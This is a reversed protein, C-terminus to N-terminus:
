GKDLIGKRYESPTKHVIKKFIKTFYNVDPIGCYQAITQIQLSTTNLLLIAYEIRKQNVYDTLTIDTVKKFQNSLYSPNVNLEASINKLSLNATLDSDILKIVKQILSSYKKMSHNKVLLCYKRVMEKMLKHGSELSTIQEIKRAYDSSIRDIQYPHVAGLEAAKRLLTNLVITYNKLNRIPNNTRQELYTVSSGLLNEAKHAHGQAVAQMLENERLYRNELAQMDYPLYDAASSNQIYSTHYKSESVSHNLFEYSFRNMSGWMKEGLVNLVTQLMSEDKIIPVMFYYNQLSKFLHPPISYKEVYNMLFSTNVDTVTIPGVFFATPIERDPLLMAYYICQFDDQIRYICNDKGSYFIQKMNIYDDELGLMQRFHVDFESLDEEKSTFLSTHIHFKDCFSLFFSFAAEYNM